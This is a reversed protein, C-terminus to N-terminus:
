LLRLIDGLLIKLEAARRRSQERGSSSRLSSLLVGQEISTRIGRTNLRRNVEM